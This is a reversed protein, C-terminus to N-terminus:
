ERMLKSYFMLGYKTLSESLPRWISSFAVADLGSKTAIEELTARGDVYALSRLAMASVPIEAVAGSHSVPIVGTKAATQSLKQGSIGKLHPVADRENRPAARDGTRAVYAIHTRIAGNLKEALEMKTVEDIDRLLSTDNVFPVPDYLHAQPQGILHLGAAEIAALFERITYARDQSHLLLDYFGADSARHDSLHRNRKFPHGDPVREFIAKAKKLRDAPKGKLLTAFAEQLPYVGTRGYPAYVMLGIGGEETVARALADFGEQPEPLHHLVGCCDIYDYEGMDPADLLSGTVFEIEGLGRAQARAEAIERAKPSIDLYTIQHPKGAITLVQAMQILADGTGGGAVLVRLTQSWNRRGAFLFHDIELPHSPSGTVLRSAEDSPNREPYPYADYHASLQDANNAM